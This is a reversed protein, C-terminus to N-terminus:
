DCDYSYIEIEEAKLRIQIEGTFGTGSFKYIGDEVTLFVPRDLEGGQFDQLLFINM